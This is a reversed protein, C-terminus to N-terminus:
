AVASRIIEKARERVGLSFWNRYPFQPDFLLQEAGDATFPGLMGTYATRPWTARLASPFLELGKRVLEQVASPSYRCPGVLPQTGQYSVRPGYSVFERLDRAERFVAALEPVPLDAHGDRLFQEAAKHTPYERAPLEDGRDRAAVLADRLKAPISEPLLWMLALSLHFLGYYANVAGAAYDSRAVDAEAAALLVASKAVAVQAEVWFRAQPDKEGTQVEETGM